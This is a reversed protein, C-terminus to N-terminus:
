FYSDSSTLWQCRIVNSNTAPDNTASNGPKSEEARRVAIEEVPNMECLMTRVSSVRGSVKFSSIHLWMSMKPRTANESTRKTM